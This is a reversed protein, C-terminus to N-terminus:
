AELNTKKVVKGQMEETDLQDPDIEIESIQDNVAGYAILLSM